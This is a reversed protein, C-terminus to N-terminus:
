KVKNLIIIEHVEEAENNLMTPKYTYFKYVLGNPNQVPKSEFVM